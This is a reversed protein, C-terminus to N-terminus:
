SSTGARVVADLAELHTALAQRGQPTASLWTRPRRGVFGKRVHLYGAEELLAVQKSCTAAPIEVLDMVSRFDMEAVAVVCALISLRIPSTIVPDLRHRPHSGETV